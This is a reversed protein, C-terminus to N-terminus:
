LVLLLLFSFLFENTKGRKFVMESRRRPWFHNGFTTKSGNTVTETAQSDEEDKGIVKDGNIPLLHFLRCGCVLRLLKNDLNGETSDM